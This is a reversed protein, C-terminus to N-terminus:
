KWNSGFDKWEINEPLNGGEEIPPPEPLQSAEQHKEWQSALAEAYIACDLHFDCRKQWEPHLLKDRASESWKTDGKADLILVTACM